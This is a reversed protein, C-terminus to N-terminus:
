GPLGSVVHRLVSRSRALPRGSDNLAAALVPWAEVASAFTLKTHLHLTQHLWARVASAMPLRATAEIVLEPLRTYDDVRLPRRLLIALVVGGMEVVDARQDFQPPTAAAPLTLGCERWFRERNWQLTELATAFVANTTVIAGERGLVVHAPSLAGHALSGPREHLWAVARMVAGAIDLIAEDNLELTGQEMSRLLELISVGDPHPTFVSVADHVRRIDLVPAIPGASAAMGSEAFAAARSRIAREAAMTSLAPILELIEVAGWRSDDATRTTGLGGNM